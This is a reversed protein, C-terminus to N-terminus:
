NEQKIDVSDVIKNLDEEPVCLNTCLANKLAESIQLSGASPAAAQRKPGTSRSRNRNKEAWEAHSDKDHSSYYLGDFRGQPDKHHPCWNWTVGDKTVTPGVNKTRWLKLTKTGPVMEETPQNADQQQKQDRQEKLKKVDTTLALIKADKPDVKTWDGRKEMNTYQSKAATILESPTIKSHYGYNSDVDSKIAGVHTNFEKNPGSLLASLIHRRYTEPEYAHGNSTIAQHHKEMEKLMETVNNHYEHLKMQEIAQRHLEINVTSTPDIEELTVKLMTPGDYTEIGTTDVFTFKAKELMLDEWGKPTLMGKIIESVVSAHVRQYFRKKDDDSNAPDLAAKTWPQMPVDNNEAIATGYRRHAERQVRELSISPSQTLLNKFDGANGGTYSTPISTVVEGMLQEKARLYEMIEASNVSSYPLRKDEPLGKTKELFIKQGAPDGPNFNSTLPNETWVTTM